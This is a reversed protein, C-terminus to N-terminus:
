PKWEALKKLLFVKTEVKSGDAFEIEYVKGSMSSKSAIKEVFDQATRISKGAKEWKMRLHEAAQKPMYSSGNRWFKAGKQAEIQGLLFEIKRKEVDPQASAYQKSVVLSFLVLWVKLARKVGEM